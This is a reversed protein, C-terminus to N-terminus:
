RRSFKQAKMGSHWLTTERRAYRGPWNRAKRAM